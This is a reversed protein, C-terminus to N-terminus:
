EAKDKEAQAELAAIRERLSDCRWNLMFICGCLLITVLQQNM